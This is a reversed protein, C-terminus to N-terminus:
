KLIKFWSTDVCTITPEGFAENVAETVGPHEVVGYDHGGIIWKCKPKYLEIEKKVSEYSHDADIYIVDFFEDPFNDVQNYSYDQILHINDWHRTNTYFNRKVDGWEDDLLSLADEKGEFPDMCFIKEFIQSAAFISASEGKYSGIELLKFSHNEYNKIKQRLIENIWNLGRVLGFFHNNYKAKKPSWKEPPNYRLTNKM